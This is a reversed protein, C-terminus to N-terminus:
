FLLCNIVLPNLQIITNYQVNLCYAQTRQFVNVNYDLLGFSNFIESRLINILKTSVKPKYTHGEGFIDDIGVM